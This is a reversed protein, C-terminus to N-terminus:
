AMEHIHHRRLTRRGETARERDADCIEREDSSLNAEVHHLYLTKIQDVTILPPWEEELPKAILNSRAFM